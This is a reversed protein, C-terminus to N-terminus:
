RRNQLSETLALPQTKKGMQPAPINGFAVDVQSPPWEEPGRPTFGIGHQWFTGFILRSINVQKADRNVRENKPPPPCTSEFHKLDVAVFSLSNVWRIPTVKYALPALLALLALPAATGHTIKCYSTSVPVPFSHSTISSLVAGIVDGRQCNQSSKDRVLNYFSPLHWWTGGFLM